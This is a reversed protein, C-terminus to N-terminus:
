NKKIYILRINSEKLDYKKCAEEIFFDERDPVLETRRRIEDVAKAIAKTRENQTRKM